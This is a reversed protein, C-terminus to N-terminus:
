LSGVTPSSDGAPIEKSSEGGSIDESSIGGSIDESIGVEVALEVEVSKDEM